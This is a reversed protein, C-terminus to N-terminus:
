DDKLGWGFDHAVRFPTFGFENFPAFVSFRKRILTISEEWLPLGYFRAGYISTFNEMKDLADHSDFFEALGQVLVPSSYIGACGWCNEKAKVCHPASDSGLFFNPHGSLVAKVLFERDRPTKVVPKCYNHPYINHKLVDDLTLILHHYTITAAINNHPNKNLILDVADATSIHELIIKLKPYQNALWSIFPLFDKEGDMVFSKPMEGHWSSIMGNKSQEEWCDLLNQPPNNIVEEALGKSSNTTVGEPYSKTGIAGVNKVSRILEPDCNSEMKIMMLPNFDPYQKSFFLIQDRYWVVDNHSITPPSTNPMIVAYKCVKATPIVVEQLIRSNDHRLHVHADFLKLIKVESKM